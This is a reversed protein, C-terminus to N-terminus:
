IVQKRRLAEIEAASYGLESLVEDNHEGYEPAATALRSPTRSLVIPQALLDIAGLAPSVVPQTVHLHQVQPDAFTQDM